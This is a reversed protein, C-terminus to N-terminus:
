IESINMGTRQEFQEALSPVGSSEEDRMIREVRWLPFFQDGFGIFPELRLIAGIYDEFANLDMGRVFVGASSIEHMVGWVKERPSHLVLIVADNAEIKAM